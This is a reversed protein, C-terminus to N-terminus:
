LIRLTGYSGSFRITKTRLIIGSGEIHRLFHDRTYFTLQYYNRVSIGRFPPSKVDGFENPDPVVSITIATDAMAPRKFDKQDRIAYM